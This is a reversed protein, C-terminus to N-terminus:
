WFGNTKTPKWEHKLSKEAEKISNATWTIDRDVGFSPVVYNRPTAVNSATQGFSASM